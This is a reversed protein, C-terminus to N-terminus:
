EPASPTYEDINHGTPVPLTGNWVKARHKDPSMPRFCTIRRLGSYQPQGNRFYLAYTGDDLRVEFVDEKGPSRFLMYSYFTDSNELVILGCTGQSLDVTPRAAPEFYMHRHEGEHGKLKHCPVLGQGDKGPILAPCCLGSFVPHVLGAWTAQVPAPAPKPKEPVEEAPPIPKRDIFRKRFEVMMSDAIGSADSVTFNTDALTASSFRVWADAELGAIMEERDPSDMGLMVHGCEFKRYEIM